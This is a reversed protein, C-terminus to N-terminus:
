DRDRPKEVLGVENGAPDLFTTFVLIHTAGFEPGETRPMVRAGGAAEIRDLTEDIDDVQIFFRASRSSWEPVPGIGVTLAGTGISGVSYDGISLSEDRDWGFVHRYFDSLATPDLGRLELHVVPSTM